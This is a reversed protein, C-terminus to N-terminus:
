EQAPRVTVSTDWPLTTALQTVARQTDSSLQECLDRLDSNKQLHLAPWRGQAIFIHLGSISPSMDAKSNGQEPASGCHSSPNDLM